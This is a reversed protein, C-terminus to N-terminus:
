GPTRTRRSARATSRRGSTTWRSRRHLPGAHVRARLRRAGFPGARVRPRRRAGRVPRALLPQLRHRLADGGVRLERHPRRRQHGQQRARGDGDRELARRAPDEARHQLRRAPAGAQRGPDHQHVRHEGLVAPLRGLPAGQRDAGRDPLARPRARGARARRRARRAMRANGASRSRRGPENRIEQARPRRERCAAHPPEITHPTRPRQMADARRRTDYSGRGRM